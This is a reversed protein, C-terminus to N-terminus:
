SILMTQSFTVYQLFVSSGVCLYCTDKFPFFFYIIIAIKTNIIIKISLYVSNYTKYYIENFVEKNGNIYDTILDDLKREKM